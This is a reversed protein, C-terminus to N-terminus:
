SYGTYENHLLRLVKVPDGSGVRAFPVFLGQMIPPPGTSVCADSANSHISKAYLKQCKCICHQISATIWPEKRLKKFNVVRNVTPICHDIADCLKDDIVNM